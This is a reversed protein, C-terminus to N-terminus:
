HDRESVIRCLLVTLVDLRAGTESQRGAEMLDDATYALEPLTMGWFYKQREEATM